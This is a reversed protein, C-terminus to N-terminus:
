IQLLIFSVKKYQQYHFIEEGASQSPTDKIPPPHQMLMNTPLQTDSKPTHHHHSPTRAEEGELEHKHPQSDAEAESESMYRKKGKRNTSESPHAKPKENKHLFEKYAQLSGVSKHSRTHQSKEAKEKKGKTKSTENKTTRPLSLAIKNEQEQCRETEFGLKKKVNRSKIGTRIMEKYKIEDTKMFARSTFNASKPRKGRSSTGSIKTENESINKNSEHKKLKIGPYIREKMQHITIKKNVWSPTKAPREKFDLCPTYQFSESEPISNSKNYEAFQQKFEQIGVYFPDRQFTPELEQSNIQSSLARHKKKNEPNKIDEEQEFIEM